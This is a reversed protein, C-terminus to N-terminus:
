AAKAVNSIGFQTCGHEALFDEIADIQSRSVMIPGFPTPSGMRRIAAMEALFCCIQEDRAIRLTRIIGDGAAMESRSTQAVQPVPMNQQGMLHDDHQTLISAKRRRTAWGKAYVSKPRRKRSVSSRSKPKKSM